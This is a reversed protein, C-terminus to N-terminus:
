GLNGLAPDTLVYAKDAKVHDRYWPTIVSPDDNSNLTIQIEHGGNKENFAVNAKPNLHSGPYIPIGYKGYDVTGIKQVVQATETPTSPGPKPKEKPKNAADVDAQTFHPHYVNDDEGCGYLTAAGILAAFIWKSISKMSM